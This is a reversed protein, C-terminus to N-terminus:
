HTTQDLHRRVAEAARRGTGVVAPIGVGEYAAGAVELGPLDAVGSRITAVRGAHGVAYQPLAGGWRQVHGDLLTPLPRGLARGIERVAVSVLEDDSRQLAASEGARGISARVYATGDGAEDLWGWKASSFTAAKITWGEVPPVLFGSGPVDGLAAKAVGLTVVAMSAMAIGGLARAAGAAHGSLLRAAPTPPLALVVADAVVEEEAVTPGCVVVWGRPSRRLSRVICQSRVTGGRARIAEVLLAPLGGLGGLLGAFVSGTRTGGGGSGVRRAAELLSGGSEVVPWLTPTASRLSILRADGAYVGGLLPEVLRDVVAEGLRAAVYEGVGVDSEVVGPWPREAAMRAVEAEDLIGAAAAPDGPIGMVTGTPLPHLAGRSWVGASTTAPTTLLDALGAERVLDVLEPRVALVSEAGVDVALGAVTERRLKGGPRDGADLVAVEVDPLRSLDYAAALGAIGGGVVVVRAAVRDVIDPATM